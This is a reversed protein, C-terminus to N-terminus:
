RGMAELMFDKSTNMLLCFVAVAAPGLLLGAGVFRHPIALFGCGMIYNVCFAVGVWFSFGAPAPAGSGSSVGGGGGGGDEGGLLAGESPRAGGRLWARATAVLSPM